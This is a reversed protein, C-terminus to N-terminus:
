TVRVIVSSVVTVLPKQVTVTPPTSYRVAEILVLPVLGKSNVM